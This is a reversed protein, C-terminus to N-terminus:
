EAQLIFSEKFVSDDFKIRLGIILWCEQLQSVVM